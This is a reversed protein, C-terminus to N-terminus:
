RGAERLLDASRLEVAAACIAEFSLGSREAIDLLTQHGDSLNLVWLMALEHHQPVDGGHRHTLGRRGLQPEGRPSTNLYRGNRELTDVIERMAVFSEALADASVLALNDGSTHYEAYGNEVARSLRGVPLDFGPSGFQREDYGVPSFDDISAFSPRRRLVYEAVRDIEHVGRRTRKYRVGAGYGLLVAVLGHRIRGLREVNAHLWALSGLRGPGFVIRYTYRRDRTMLWQALHVSVAVGSLNDNALSPHCIHAYVIVTEDSTGPLVCEGYSLSGPALSSDICVDYLGDRLQLRQQHSLCFGWTATDYSTRYPILDPQEHLSHLHRQLEDLTVRARVPASYGVVHLNHTAFDVVRRGGPDDIYAARINWEPPVTWDFLSTGTPVEYVRLPIDEGIIQLSRRVGDGTLSRCLPFLRAMLALMRQSEASSPVDAIDTM